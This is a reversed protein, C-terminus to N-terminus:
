YSMLTICFNILGQIWCVQEVRIEYDGNLKKGRFYKSRCFFCFVLYVFDAENRQRFKVIQLCCYFCFMDKTSCEPPGPSVRECDEDDGAKGKNCVVNRGPARRTGAFERGGVRMPATLLRDPGEPQLRAGSRIQAVPRTNSPRAAQSKRLRRRGNREKANKASGSALRTRRKENEDGDTSEPGNM